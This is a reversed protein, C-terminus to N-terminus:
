ACFLPKPLGTKHSKAINIKSAESWLGNADPKGIFGLQEWLKLQSRYNNSDISTSVDWYKRVTEAYSLHNSRMDIICSIKFEPSYKKFKSGKKAM